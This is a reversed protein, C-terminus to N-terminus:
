NDLRKVFSSSQGTKEAFVARYAEAERKTDFQGIYVRYWKKGNVLSEKVQVNTEDKLSVSKTQADKETPYSAIQLTYLYDWESATPGMKQTTATQVNPAVVAETEKAAVDAKILQVKMDTATPTSQVPVEMSEKKLDLKVMKKKEITPTSATGRVVASAQLSIVVAFPEDSKKVLAKRHGEAIDQNAFRGSCVKFWVQGRTFTPFYFSNKEVKKLKAVHDIADQESIYSSVQVTFPNQDVTASKMEYGEYDAKALLVAGGLFDLGSQKSSNEALVTTTMALLLISTIKKRM